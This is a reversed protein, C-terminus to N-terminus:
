GSALHLDERYFRHRGISVTRPLVEAWSPLVSRAHYHTAGGTLARPAGDLMARAVRGARAWAAEDRIAEPRGDCRYSFQCANSAEEGERVVECVTDPYRGGDVRNLVVEAVAIQGSLAEGRAEFYVAEALCRWERGGAPVALAAMTVAQSALSPRSAAAPDVLVAPRMDISGQAAAEMGTAGFLLLALPRVVRRWWRRM